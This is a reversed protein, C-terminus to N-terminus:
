IMMMRLKIGIISHEKNPVCIGNWSIQVELPWCCRHCSVHVWSLPTPLGRPFRPAPPAGFTSFVFVKRPNKWALNREESLLCNESDTNHSRPTVARIIIRPPIVSDRPFMRASVWAVASVPKLLESRPFFFCFPSPSICMHLATPHWVPTKLWCSVKRNQILGFVVQSICSSWLNLIPASANFKGVVLFLIFNHFILLYM